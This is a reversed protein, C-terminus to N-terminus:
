KATKIEHSSGSPSHVLLHEINCIKSYIDSLAVTTGIVFLAVAAILLKIYIPKVKKM